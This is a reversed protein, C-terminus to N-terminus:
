ILMTLFQPLHTILVLQSRSRVRKNRPLASQNLGEEYTTFEIAPIILAATGQRGEEMAENRVTDQIRSRFDTCLAFDFDTCHAAFFRAINRWTKF